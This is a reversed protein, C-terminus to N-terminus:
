LYEYGLGRLTPNLIQALSSRAQDDIVVRGKGISSTSVERLVNDHHQRLNVDGLFPLVDLRSERRPIRLKEIVSDVILRQDLVLDEYRVEIYDDASLGRRFSSWARHSNVWRQAGEELTSYRGATKCSMAVDVGDRLLYVYKASPMMKRIIGLSFTYSPTKDGVWLCDIAKTRAFYLYLRQILNAFTQDRVTWTKANASFESLSNLGFTEFEPHHQLGDLVADVVESWSIRPKSLIDLYLQVLIYTEPPIYIASREMLLRRMLTSGCRGSGVIFIFMNGQNPRPKLSAPLRNFLYRAGGRRILVLEWKLRPHNELYRIFPTKM